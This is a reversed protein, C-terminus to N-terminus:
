GRLVVVIIFDVIFPPDMELPTSMYLRSCAECVDDDDDDFSRIPTSRTSIM